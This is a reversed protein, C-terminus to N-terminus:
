RCSPLGASRGPLHRRAWPRGGGQPEQRGHRLGRRVGGGSQVPREVIAAARVLNEGAPGIGAVVARDDGLERHLHEETERITKGWLHGADRLEAHGDTIWLYVPREAKGTIVLHDFGAYKLEPGFYGGINASGKGGNFANITDISVRNAAPALTGDLCGPGFILPNGPDSWTTGPATESLLIYSNVALGGLFRAAYRAMDDTWIRGTTLDVRLIRGALGGTPSFTRM